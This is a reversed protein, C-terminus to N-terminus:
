GFYGCVLGYPVSGLHYHTHTVQLSGTCRVYFLWFWCFPVTTHTHTRAHAHLAFRTSGHPPVHYGHTDLFGAYTRHATVYVTIHTFQTTRPLTVFWGFWFLRLHATRLPPTFTTHAYVAHLWGRCGCASGCTLHSSAVAFPTRLTTATFHLSGLSGSRCFASRPLTCAPLPLRIVRLHTVPLVASGFLLRCFAFLVYPTATVSGSFWTFTLVWFWAVTYAATVAPSVVLHTFAPYTYHAIAHLWRPLHAACGYGVHLTHLVTTGCVAFTCGAVAHSGCYVRPLSRLPLRLLRSCGRHTFWVYVYAYTDVAVTYCFSCRHQLASGFFSGRFPYVLRYSGYPLVASGPVYVRLHTDNFTPLWCRLFAYVYRSGTFRAYVAVRVSRVTYGYGSGFPLHPLTVVATPLVAFTFTIRLHTRLLVTHPYARLGCIRLLSCVYSGCGVLTHLVAYCHSFTHHYAFTRYFLRLVASFACHPLPLTYAYRPLRTTFSCFWSGRYLTHYGLWAGCCTFHRFWICRAYIRTRRLRTYRCLYGTFTVLWCRCFTRCTFTALLWYVRLLLRLRSRCSRTPTFWVTVVRLATRLTHPLPLRLILHTVTVPAHTVLRLWGCTTPCIPVSRLVAFPVAYPVHPPVPRLLRYGYCYVRLLRLGVAPLQLLRTFSSYILLYSCCITVVPRLPVTFTIWVAFTVTFPLCGHPLTHLAFTFWGRVAFFPLTRLPLYRTYRQLFWCLCYIFRLWGHLRLPIYRLLWVTAHLTVVM